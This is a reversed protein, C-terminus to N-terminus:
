RFADPEIRVWGTEQLVRAYTSKGSRPLGVMLALRAGRPGDGTM